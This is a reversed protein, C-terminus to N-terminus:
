FKLVFYQINRGHTNRGGGVSGDNSAASVGPVYGAPWWRWQL